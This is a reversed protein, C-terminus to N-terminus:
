GMEAAAHGPQGPAESCLCLVGKEIWEEGVWQPHREKAKTFVEDVIQEDAIGASRFLM